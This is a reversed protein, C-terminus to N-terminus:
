PLTQHFCSSVPPNYLTEERNRPINLIRVKRGTIEIRGEAYYQIAQPYIRHEEKLIRDALTEGDDDDYVPVVAQIIIPGSDVGEEAFHVTCGSFKVGYDAAKKQVHIGPFSPLLAPHINMIKMPYTQFFLPSLIRMFGAMVVLKVGADSLIEIMRRDFSERVDFDRHNVVATPIGYELCRQLAYAEENNSIVVRIEADLTENEIHDILSQLNSGSGSVLVGIPIKETPKNNRAMESTPFPQNM